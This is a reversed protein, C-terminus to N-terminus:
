SISPFRNALLNLVHQIKSDRGYVHWPSPILRTYRPRKLFHDICLYDKISCLFHRYEMFEYAEDPYQICGHFARLIELASLIVDSISSGDYFCEITAKNMYVFIRTIPHCKSFVQIYFPAQFRHSIWKAVVNRMKFCVADLDQGTAYKILPSPNGTWVVAPLHCGTNESYNSYCLSDPKITSKLELQMKKEVLLYQIDKFLKTFGSRPLAAMAPELGFYERPLGYLEDALINVAKLSHILQTFHLPFIRSIQLGVAGSSHIIEPCISFRKVWQILPQAIIEPYINLRDVLSRAPAERLQVPLSKLSYVPGAFGRFACTDGWLDTFSGYNHPFILLQSQPLLRFWAASPTLYQCDRFYWEDEVMWDRLIGGIASRSEHIECSIGCSYCYLASVIGTIGAGSIVLDVNQNVQSGSRV